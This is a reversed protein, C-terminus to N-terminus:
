GLLPVVVSLARAKRDGPNKYGHPQDGEFALVDGKRATVSAGDVFLTIEGEIVYLYEKTGRLHPQGTMGTRADLEMHDIHLGRIKDPLLKHIRASGAAREQLPVDAARIHELARRPRSLLEEVSVQLAGAMALLSSLSPNAAGSEIHTVTSRPLGATKALQSQTLAKQQRLQSVNKALYSSIEGSM